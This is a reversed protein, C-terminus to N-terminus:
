FKRLKKAEEPLKDQYMIVMCTTNVNVSTVMIALTAFIRGYKKLFKKMWEGEEGPLRMIGYFLLRHSFM